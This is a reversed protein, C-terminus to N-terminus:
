SIAFRIEYECDAARKDYPCILFDSSSFKDLKPRFYYFHFAIAKHNPDFKSLNAQNEIEDAKM